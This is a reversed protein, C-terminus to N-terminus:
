TYYRQCEAERGRVVRKREMPGSTKTVVTAQDERGDREFYLVVWDHTMGLEHARATNSYLATFKWGGRETNLVPLWAEGEPNFRKPAIKRLEGAEAKERYEADVSLLTEIDPKAREQNDVGKVRKRAKRQAARSLMGALSVQVTNVREPGFGEVRRLRGDYAAQELEELTNINLEEVIRHALEEGISPVQAFLAEPEVEGMLRNLLNSQGTEVYTTIVQALGEGVGPLGTIKEGNGQKVMKALSGKAQRVTIAANRYARVRHVNEGQAELLEAIRDLVGAIEDNSIYTDTRNKDAM